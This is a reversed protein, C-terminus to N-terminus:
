GHSQLGHEFISVNENRIVFSAAESRDQRPENLGGLLNLSTTGQNEHQTIDSQSSPDLSSWSWIVRSTDAQVLSYNNSVYVTQIAMIIM